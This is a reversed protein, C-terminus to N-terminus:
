RLYEPGFHNVRALGNSADFINGRAQKSPAKYSAPKLVDGTLKDIFSHIQANLRGGIRGDAYADGRVGKSHDQQDNWEQEVLMVKIFRGGEVVMARSGPNHTYKSETWYDNHIKEVGDRYNELRETFQARLDATLEPSDSFKAVKKTPNNM